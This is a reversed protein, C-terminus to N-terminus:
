MIKIKNQSHLSNEFQKNEMCIDGFTIIRFIELLMTGYLGKVLSNPYWVTSLVKYFESYGWAISFDTTTKPVILREFEINLFSEELNTM